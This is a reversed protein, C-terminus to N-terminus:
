GLYGVAYLVVLTFIIQLVFIIPIGVMFLPHRTKHHIIRMTLYMLVSSGLFSFLMLTSERVRWSGLVSARKDYITLAIAIINVIVLYIILFYLM